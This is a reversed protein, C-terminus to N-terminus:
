PEKEATIEAVASRVNENESGLHTILITAKGGPIEMDFKAKFFYPHLRDAISDYVRIRTDVEDLASFVVLDVKKNVQHDLVANVIISLVQFAKQDGTLKQSESGDEDLASFSIFAAKVAPAPEEHRIKILFKKEKFEFKGLEFNGNTSWIIDRRTNLIEQLKM